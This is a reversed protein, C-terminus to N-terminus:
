TCQTPVQIQEGPLDLTMELKPQSNNSCQLNILHGLLMPLNADVAICFTETNSYSVHADLCMVELVM